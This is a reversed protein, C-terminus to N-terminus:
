RAANIVLQSIGIALTHGPSQPPGEVCRIQVRYESSPDGASAVFSLSGERCPSVGVARNRGTSKAEYVGRDALGLVAEIPVATPKEPQWPFAAWGISCTQYIDVEEGLLKVSATGVTALIRSAFMEAEARDAYRSVILFEDGGWRVLVDSSRIVAGIRKTVEKLVHDGAHHGYRDNVEKLCDLDIMYFVLDKASLNQRSVYSRVVHSADASITADFFRRNRAGTLPDTLSAEQLVRNTGDLEKRLRSERAFLLSAMALVTGQAVWERFIVVPRPIASNIFTCVTIVPLSLVALVGVQTLPLQREHEAEVPTIKPMGYGVLGVVTVSALAVAYPLDYWSGPYYGHNDIARNAVHAAAALLLQAGFLTAYFWRRRGSCHDWCFIMTALLLGDLCSVLKNYNLAYQSGDPVIYQWPIVFFLYLYLWWCLLLLFDVRGTFRSRESRDLDPQLLLAALVPIGSLFLLIDGVFPNPAERRLILEFYMWTAQVVIRTTWGGALLVWFLRAQKTSAGANVSFVLVASLILIFELVDNILTLLFSRPVFITAAVQVLVFCTVLALWTRRPDSRNGGGSESVIEGM